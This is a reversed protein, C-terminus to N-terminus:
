RVTKPAGNPAKDPAHNPWPSFLPPPPLIVGRSSPTLVMMLTSHGISPARRAIRGAVLASPSAIHCYRRIGGTAINIGLKEASRTSNGALNASGSQRTDPHPMWLDPAHSRPPQPTPGYSNRHVSAAGAVPYRQARHLPDRYVPFKVLSRPTRQEPVGRLSLRWRIRSWRCSLDGGPPAGALSQNGHGSADEVSDTM